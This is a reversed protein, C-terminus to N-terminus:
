DLEATVLAPAGERGASTVAAVAYRTAAEGANRRSYATQDANVTALPTSTSGSVAYIKFSAITLGTNDASNRWTLIDIHEAQSFSRNLVKKASATPAHIYRFDARITKDRTMTVTIPNATGTEDGTWGNFQVCAAPMATVQIGANIPYQHTGPAPSTTGRENESEITLSRAGLSLMAKDIQLRPIPIVYSDCASSIPTGTERLANLLTTVSAGPLMQRLLAWAGAVHPTAMSTGNGARYETDSGGTASTISSGPAFLRQAAADWNSFWSRGDSKTSSGVAISTSICAPSTIIGCLANNGTAVATAIGASRLLDIASKMAPADSDCFGQFFLQSLSMNVSAIKHAGRLSYVYNLGALIDSDYAAVCPEGGCIGASFRSFVKVAILDADKAIGARVGSRGAAIGSVHTGHDYGKIDSSYHVASGPGNMVAQGNPCGGTGNEGLARCAELITKGAFMEHTKRIGTDLVAVYWGAGTFGWDWAASAGILSASDDLMPFVRPDDSIPREGTWDKEEGEPPDILKQVRDEEIGLVDPSNELVALANPSVRLTLFPIYDFRSVVEYETGQLEATIKWSAYEITKALAADALSREFAREPTEDFSGFQASAATLREIEPVSFHVIVQARGATWAKERLLGAGAASKMSPASIARPSVTLAFFALWFAAKARSKGSPM